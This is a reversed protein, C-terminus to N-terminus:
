SPRPRRWSSMQDPESLVERVKPVVRRFTEAPNQRVLIPLNSIVSARQVEQGVSLLYVAREIDNLDEDVTLQDIEEATKLSRRIPREIFALEHVDDMPGFMMRSSSFM